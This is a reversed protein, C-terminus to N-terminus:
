RAAPSFANAAPRSVRWVPVGLCRFQGCPSFGHRGYFALNEARATELYIPLQAAASQVVHRVLASGLGHRQWGADVGITRLYTFPVSPEHAAIASAAVIGRWAGAVGVGILGRLAFLWDRGVTVRAGPRIVLVVARLNGSADAVGWAPQGSRCHSRVALRFNWRMRRVRDVESAGCIAIVLPDNMFAGVLLQAAPQEDEWRLPRIVTSVAAANSLRSENSAPVVKRSMAVTTVVM